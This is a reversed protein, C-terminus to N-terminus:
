LKARKPSRMQMEYLERDSPIRNIEIKNISQITYDPPMASKLVEGLSSYYYDAIWKALKLLNEDFIPQDDLVEIILKVDEVTSNESKAVVVGTIIRKGLPVSVRKGIINHSEIEPIKYIFNQNIPLPLAVEILNNM